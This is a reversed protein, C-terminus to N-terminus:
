PHRQQNLLIIARNANERNMGTNWQTHVLCNEHPAVEHVDADDIVIYCTVISANEHLWLSICEGRTAGHNTTVGIVLDGDIGAHRFYGRLVELPIIRGLAGTVVIKAGTYILIERLYASPVADFGDIRTRPATQAKNMVGDIDLFIIKLHAEKALTLM